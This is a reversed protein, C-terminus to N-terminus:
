YNQETHQSQTAAEYKIRSKVILRVAAEYSWRNEANTGGCYEGEPTYVSRAPCPETLVLVVWFGEPTIWELQHWLDLKPKM